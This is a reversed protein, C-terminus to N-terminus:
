CVLGIIFSIWDVQPLNQFYFIWNDIFDAPINSLGLGFLDNMQTSFITLAIGGPFGVIVPYPVFKIVSGLRALGMLVLMIGAMVTAITLGGLGYQQIVGYIIVIFAGTPGGIQM